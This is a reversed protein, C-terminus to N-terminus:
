ANLDITNGNRLMMEINLDIEETEFTDTDLNINKIKRKNEKYENNGENKNESSSDFTQNSTLVEISNVKVNQLEFKELLMNMQVNMVEKVTETQAIFKADIGDKTNTLVVNVTGLSSPHLEFEISTTEKTKEVTIKETIQKMVEMTDSGTKEKLIEDFKTLKVDQQIKEKEPTIQVLINEFSFDDTDKSEEEFNDKKSESSSEINLQKKPFIENDKESSKFEVKVTDEDQKQIYGFNLIKNNFVFNKDMEPKKVINSEIFQPIKEDSLDFESVLEEKINEVDQLLDQLFTYNESEEKGQNIFSIVKELNDNDILEIGKLNNTELTNVASEVPVDLVQALKMVLENGLEEIRKCIKKNDFDDNETKEFDLNKSEPEDKVDSKIKEFMEKFSKGNEKIEPKAKVDVINQNQVEPFFNINLGQYM